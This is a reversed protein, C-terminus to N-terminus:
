FGDDIFMEPSFFAEVGHDDVPFDLCEHTCQFGSQIGMLARSHDKLIRCKGQQAVDFRM